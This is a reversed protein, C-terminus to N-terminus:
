LMTHLRPVWDAREAYVLHGVIDYASWTEAGENTRVWQDSLGRLQADLVAPTRRLIAGAEPLSFETANEMCALHRLPRFSERISWSDAGGFVDRVHSLM